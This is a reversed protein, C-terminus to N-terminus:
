AIARTRNSLYNRYSPFATDNLEQQSFTKQLAHRHHRQEQRQIRLVEIENILRNIVKSANLDYMSGGQEQIAVQFRLHVLGKVLHLHLLIPNTYDHVMSM